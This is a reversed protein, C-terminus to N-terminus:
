VPSSLLAAGRVPALCRFSLPDQVRQPPKGAKKPDLAPGSRYITQAVYGSSEGLATLLYGGTPPIVGSIARMTTTKGAGNPGLLGLIQGPQVDFSLGAVALTDGYNKHFNEVRIVVEGAAAAPRYSYSLPAAPRQPDTM